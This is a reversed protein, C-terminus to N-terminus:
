PNGKIRPRVRVADVIFVSSPESSTFQNVLSSLGDRVWQGKTDRDLQDGFEQMARREAPLDRGLSKLALERVLNKTKLVHINERPFRTTLQQWLTTKGSAVRGSLLVIQFAM